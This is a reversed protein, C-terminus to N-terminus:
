NINNYFRIINMSVQGIKTYKIVSVNSKSMSVQMSNM